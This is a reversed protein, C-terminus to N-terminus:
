PAPPPAASSPKAFGEFFLAQLFETYFRDQGRQRSEALKDTLYIPNGGDLFHKRQLFWVFMLRNM